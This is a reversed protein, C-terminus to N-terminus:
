QVQCQDDRESSLEFNDKDAKPESMEDEGGEAGAEEM